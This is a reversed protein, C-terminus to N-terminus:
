RPSVVKGDFYDVVLRTARGIADEVDQWLGRIDATYFAMVIPGSRAYVIGVDNAIVPPGDGTKHATAYGIPLYHPMRRQGAQQARLIRVMEKSSAASVLTGKEIAELLRGTERPTNVGLWNSADAERRIREDRSEALASGGLQLDLLQEPTLSRYKADRLEYPKRFFDFVSMVMRTERYGKAALWQNFAEIGGVKALVLDTATNDSTIIMEIILDRVTPNAGVDHHRLIGSGGRFDARAIVHREALNLRGQDAMEFAMVMLPLKIVSFSNFREDGLVVAEEGTGLHKVYVGAKAPWRGLEAALLKSLGDGAPTAASQASATARPTHVLALLAIACCAVAHSIPRSRM